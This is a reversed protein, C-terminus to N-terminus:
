KAAPQDAIPLAVKNGVPTEATALIFGAYMLVVGVFESLYLFDVLGAKVLSGAMAPLLAGAAILLNGTMRNALVKKRWFLFASYIAGGVLALTGYINLLITMLTVLGSRVLIEKYQESVPRTVDFGAAASTLPAAIMLGLALLSAAVLIVMLLDALGRRRVLLYVTGQGLWAATLMAGCLYWLKLWLPSFTYSLVVESLTGLGFLVLGIGWLLLHKPKKYSWRKFVAAAFIFSVITALISFIHM